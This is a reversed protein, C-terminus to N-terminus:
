HLANVPGESMNSIKWSEFLIYAYIVRSFMQKRLKSKGALLFWKTRFNRWKERSKEQQKKVAPPGGFPTLPKYSNEEGLLAGLKETGRKQSSSIYNQRLHWKKHQKTEKTATTQLQKQQTYQAPGLFPFVLFSILALFIDEFWHCSLREVWNGRVGKQM